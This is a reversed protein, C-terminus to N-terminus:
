HGCCGSRAPLEHARIEQTREAVECELRQQYSSEQQRLRATELAREISLRLMELDTVPKLLYDWAGLKLAEIVDGIVGTGSVVLVPTQPRHRNIWRLVDLGDVEPMRLDVLVLDPQCTEIARIGSAGDVAQEVRYDLDSLFHLFSSRIAAEDDITLIL